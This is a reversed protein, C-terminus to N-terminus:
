GSQFAWRNDDGLQYLPLSRGHQETPGSHLGARHGLQPSGRIQSGCGPCDLVRGTWFIDMLLEYFEAGEFGPKKPRLGSVIQPGLDHGHDRGEDEMPTRAMLFEWLLMGCSYVDSRGDYDQWNIVEPAKFHIAGVPGLDAVPLRSSNGFDCVKCSMNRLLVNPGRLDRHIVSRSHLFTLAELIEAFLKPLFLLRTAVPNATAWGSLHDDCRELVLANPTEQLGPGDEMWGLLQVVCPHSLESLLQLEHLCEGRKRHVKVAVNTVLWTTGYVDGDFGGGVREWRIGLEAKKVKPLSGAASWGPPSSTAGDQTSDAECTTDDTHLQLELTETCQTSANSLQKQIVRHAHPDWEDEVTEPETSPTPEKDRGFCCNNGM